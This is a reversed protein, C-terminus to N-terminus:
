WSSYITGDHSSLSSSSHVDGTTNSYNWDAAGTFPDPPLNGSGTVLYPGDYASRDVWGGRGDFSASLDAGSAAMLDSLAPPWAATSAEFHEIADRLQKLNGRLQAEKARRQAAMARPIVILALLAIVAMVILVEVLTFGGCQRRKGDHTVVADVEM